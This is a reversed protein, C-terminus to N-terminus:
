MHNKGKFFDELYPWPFQGHFATLLLASFTVIRSSRVVEPLAMFVVPSFRLKYYFHMLIYYCLSCFRKISLWSRSQFIFNNIFKRWFTQPFIQLELELARFLNLQLIYTCMVLVHGGLLATLMGPLFSDTHRDKM